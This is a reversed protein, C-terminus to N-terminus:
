HHVVCEILRRFTVDPLPPLYLVGPFTRPEAFWASFSPFQEFVERLSQLTVSTVRQPALFPFLVTVHAPVGEAWAPDHRARFDDVLSEVEPVTIILATLSTSNM